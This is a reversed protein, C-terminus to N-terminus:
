EDEELLAVHRYLGGGVMDFDDTTALGASVIELVEEESM